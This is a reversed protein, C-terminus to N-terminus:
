SPPTVPAFSAAIHAFVPSYRDFLSPATRCVIRFLSREVPVMYERVREQGYAGMRTFELVVLRRSGAVVVRATPSSVKVHQTKIFDKEIRIYTDDVEEPATPLERLEYEIVVSAESKKQDFAVLAAMGGGVIRWDRPYEVSFNHSASVFRDTKLNPSRTLAPDGQAAAGGAVGIVSLAAVVGRWSREGGIAIAM